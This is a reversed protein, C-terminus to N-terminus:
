KVSATKRLPISENGLEDMFAGKAYELSLVLASIADEISKGGLADPNILINVPMTDSAGPELSFEGYQSVSNVWIGNAGNSETIISYITMDEETSNKVDINLSYCEWKGNKNMAQAATESDMGYLKAENSFALENERYLKLFASADEISSRKASLEKEPEATDNEPAIINNTVRIKEYDAPDVDINEDKPTPFGLIDINLSAVISYLKEISVSETNVFVNAPYSESVGGPVTLEASVSSPCFYFGGEQTEVPAFSAFSFPAKNENEVIVDLLYVQWKDSERLFSRATSDDMNLEEAALSLFSEPNNNYYDKLAADEYISDLTATIKKSSALPSCAAFSFLMVAALLLALIKKTKM